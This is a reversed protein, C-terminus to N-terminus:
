TGPKGTGRRSRAGEPEPPTEPLRSPGLFAILTERHRQIERRLEGTMAGRPGTAKLRGGTPAADGAHRDFVIGRRVLESVLESFTM